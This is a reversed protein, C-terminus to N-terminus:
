DGIPKGGRAIGPKLGAGAVPMGRREKWASTRALGQRVIRDLNGIGREAVMAVGVRERYRRLIPGDLAAMWDAMINRRDTAGVRTFTWNEPDDQAAM